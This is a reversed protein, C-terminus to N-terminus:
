EAAFSICVGWILQPIRHCARGRKKVFDCIRRIQTFQRAFIQALKGVFQAVFGNRSHRFGAPMQARPKPYHLQGHGQVMNEVRRFVPNDPIDPMLGIRVFNQGSAAVANAGQAFPAPKRAEGLPRFADVVREACRMTRCRNGGTKAHGYCAIEHVIVIVDDGDNAVPSHACAHRKLGHIIGARQFVPQNNNQIVIVHRNCRGDTGHAGIKRAQKRARGILRHAPEGFPHRAHERVANLFFRALNFFIRAPKSCAACQKLFHAKVINARNVPMVEVM